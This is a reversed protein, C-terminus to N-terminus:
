IAKGGYVHWKELQYAAYGAKKLASAITPEGPAVNGRGLFNRHSYKGNLLETRSPMCVAPSFCHAYRMGEAALRDLVPTEVSECGYCSLASASLDAALVIIINPKQSAPEALLPLAFLLFAALWCTRRM